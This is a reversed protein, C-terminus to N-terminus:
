VRILEYTRSGLGIKEGHALCSEWECEPTVNRFHDHLDHFGEEHMRDDLLSGPIPQQRLCADVCAQDLAVPDFSAFMGVDPLIAMDNDGHCDCYPSVDIVLSIHFQPRGDVVAKAYEAMRCGLEEMAAALYEKAREVDGSLPAAEVPYEDVFKGGGPGAFNSDVLRNYAKYGPNVANVTASRNFGYNLAQRFNQNSLLAATEPSTGQQNIWLFMIGGGVFSNLYENLHGFYQSSIQEIADVEGNEFMAVKTNDDEVEIFHLNQTPFSNASDWYLDNKKLEMSSELVWDTIIYPGSFLMTEPSSGLQQSGVQEVFDQRLPYLGRVAITRDFSNLPRELTIELTLDDLAKVGVEAWDTIERSNYASANKIAFWRYAAPSGMDPNLLCYAGYEFDHATLAQGDSWKLGDRLHFTYVTYDDSVEYREAADYQLEDGYFRVLQIQTLYFLNFDNSSQSMIPNLTVVGNYAMTFDASVGNQYTNCGSLLGLLMVGTLLLAICKKM